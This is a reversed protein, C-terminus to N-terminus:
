GAVELDSQLEHIASQLLTNIESLYETREETQQVKRKLEEIIQQQKIMAEQLLLEKQERLRTKRKKEALFYGAAGLAVTPAAIVAVGTAIGGGILGGAAAFGSSIGVASFGTVGGFYLGTISVVSGAGAAMLAQNMREDTSQTRKDDELAADAESIVGRVPRLAKLNRYIVKKVM